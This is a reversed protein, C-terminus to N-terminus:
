VDYVIASQRRVTQGQWLWDPLVLPLAIGDGSGAFGSVFQSEDTTIIGNRIFRCFESHITSVDWCQLKRLCMIVMGTVHTGDVCHIYLPLNTTVIMMQCLRTKFPSWCVGFFCCCCCCCFLSFPVLGRVELITQALSKTLPMEGEKYKEVEYHKHTIGNSECFALVDPLRKPALSVITKLKLSTCVTLRKTDDCLFLYV